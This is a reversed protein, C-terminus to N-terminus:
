FTTITVIISNSVQLLFIIHSGDNYQEESQKIDRLM